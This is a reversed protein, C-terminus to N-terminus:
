AEGRVRVLGDVGKGFFGRLYLSRATRVLGAVDISAPCRLTCARCGLCSFIAAVAEETAEGGRLLRYVIAVRGRPGYGRHPGHPLTPCAAECFGCYLCRSAEELAWERAAM